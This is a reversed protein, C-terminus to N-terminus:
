TENRGCCHKYKKGSGCPCPDNRGIKKKKNNKQNSKANNINTKGQPVEKKASLDEKKEVIVNFLFKLTDKKILTATEQFLKSAEIKYEVLPDKQGYARLGIGERLSDNDQLYEMWKEDIIRLAIYKELSRLLESGLESERLDYKEKLTLKLKNKLESLDKCNDFADDDLKVIEQLSEKLALLSEDNITKKPFSEDVYKDVIQEIWGVIIDKCDERTLLKQRESYIYERQRNLVDDYEILQKRISFNNEEVKKQANEVAKTVWKHEIPENEDINLKDMLAVLRDSGFLRLLDDDLSLYFRSSGPDGQRGARGRLQNDIRRSEHRSTGIVHLGGLQRVEDDIVIDVGRGAMNTAITVSKKEGAHSIIEAEKEHYKANLVHHPIGKKKLLLSLKESKEISTTGVLVPQGREFCEQIEKILARLKAEENKYIVDPFDVRIVPKNTPIEVVMLNYIKIFEAEDTKATGTMGALKAYSRFYNQITITAITQTEERVRVHEKAEIAQHLGDSYRRGHMLRGTFEDVIIVEGDKVVYDKERKFLHHARLLQTLVHLVDIYKVDFLNDIGLLKEAKAVGVETLSLTKTKEDPTFDEEPKLRLAIPNLRNYLETKQAARGSIILPTRAEDILVSDVEDVIAYNLGRQVQDAVTLAMNDRLYDFGFEHNVGYTIDCNYAAKRQENDFNNQLYGVSVGLYEYVPRMWEADRKALYDNVTVIHVGKGSLANLYAATTAALTKGEGTAMEAIKGDNLVLGGILQVDFHRLGLTRLSAERVMAFSNILIENPFDKEKLDKLAERYNNTIQLFDERSLKKIEEEKNNIAAVIEYYKKLENEKSSGLIKSLLKNFM